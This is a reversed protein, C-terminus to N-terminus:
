VPKDIVTCVVGSRKLENADLWYATNSPTAIGKNIIKEPFGAGRLIDSAKRNNREVFINEVGSPLLGGLRNSHLGIRSSSTIERSKALAWFLACASACEGHVRLRLNHSNILDAARLSPNVMGGKSNIVMLQTNPFRALSASLQKDFRRGIPGTFIIRQDPPFYALFTRRGFGPGYACYANMKRGCLRWQIDESPAVSFNTPMANTLWLISIFSVTLSLLRLHKRM